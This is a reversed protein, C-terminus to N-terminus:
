MFHKSWGPAAFNETSVKVYKVQVHDSFSVVSAESSRRQQQQSHNSTSMNSSFRCQRLCSPKKEAGKPVSPTHGGVVPTSQTKRLTESAEFLSAAQYLAPSSEMHAVVYRNDWLQRRRPSTANGADKSAMSTPLTQPAQAESCELLNEYSHQQSLANCPLTSAVDTVQAEAPAPLLPVTPKGGKKEWYTGFITRKVKTRPAAPGSTVSDLSDLQFGDDLSVSSVFSSDDDANSAESSSRTSVSLCLLPPLLESSWNDEDESDDMRSCALLDTMPSAQPSSRTSPSLPTRLMDLKHLLKAEDVELLHMDVVARPSSYLHRDFTM